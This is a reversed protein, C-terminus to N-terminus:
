ITSINVSKKQMPINDYKNICEIGQYSKRLQLFNFIYQYFHNKSM